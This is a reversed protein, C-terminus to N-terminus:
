APPAVIVPAVYEIWRMLGGEARVDPAAAAEDANV